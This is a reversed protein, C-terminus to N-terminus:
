SIFVFGIVQAYSGWLLFVLGRSNGGLHKIVADTLKEWGRNSHSNAQGATVTLCANLLLVGQKAWGTLDGHRPIEFGKIDTKLEQYMNRLSPPIAVSRHVSFALGNAQNVGHYPDQGLIVVKIDQIPCFTTWSFVQDAPPYVTKHKRESAIFASLSLFYKKGFEPKLVKFWSHGINRSLAPTLQVQRAIEAQINSKSETHDGRTVEEDTETKTKKRQSENGDSLPRKAPVVQFFSKISKQSMKIRTLSLPFLCYNGAEFSPRLLSYRFLISMFSM